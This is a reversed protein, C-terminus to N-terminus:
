VCVIAPWSASATAENGLRSTEGVECCIFAVPVSLAVAFMPLAVAFVSLTAAFVSLAVAEAGVEATVFVPFILSETKAM